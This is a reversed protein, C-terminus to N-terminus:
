GGQDSLGSGFAVWRHVSSINALWYTQWTSTTSNFLMVRDATAASTTAHWSDPPFAEALTLHHRVIIRSGSLDPIIPMTNRPSGAQLALATATSTAIDIDFRHGEHPGDAIELYAPGVSDLLDKVSTGGVSAAVDLVTSGSTIRGSFRETEVVSPGYSRIGAAFLHHEWYWTDTAATDSTGPITVELRVLGHGAIDFGPLTDLGPITLTETGDGNVILTPSIGAPAWAMAPTLEPAVVLTMTVGSLGLPRTLVADFHSTTPNWVVKFRDQASGGSSPDRGLAFELLNAASDGDPNQLPGNQGALPHLRQWDTWSGPTSWTTAQVASSWASPGNANSAAIHYYYTTANDLSTDLFTTSSSPVTAAPGWNTGDLSREIIYQDHNTSAATWTVLIRNYDTPTATPSVPAAPPVLTNIWQDIVALAATDVVNKALPPMKEAGLSGVRVHMISQALSGPTVEHAGPIGLNNSVVGNIINQSVLPTNFRADMLAQAGGPRHCHACNSDIYSRVRTELPAATDHISVSKLMGSIQGATLTQDFMGLDSWTQLQHVPTSTGPYTFSGNFQWTRPGLVQTSATNHCQLCDTRSPYTWPQTRTAGTSTTITVDEVLGDTLLDADTGDARWKYTVGYWDGGSTKVTFRTELRMRINPNQENTALEFHKIFVTGVPYDWESDAHFTVRESAAYPADTGPLAIWRQKLANDSWLPSNVTYPIVGRAPTLTSLDAFAGTASLTAPPQPTPQSSFKLIHGENGMSTLYLEGNEDLGFSSLSYGTTSAIQRVEPTPLGQWKMAWIRGSVYDGFIYEGALTAAFTSGRYVHGGIVCRNSDEHPYRYFPATSTGILTAPPADPGTSTGEMYAWQFNAAKALVNVEEEDNQGVEGIFTQGTVPDQS